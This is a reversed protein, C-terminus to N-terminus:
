LKLEETFHFFTSWTRWTANLVSLAGLDSLFLLHSM